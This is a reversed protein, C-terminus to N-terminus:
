KIVQVTGTIQYDSFKDDVATQINKDLSLQRLIVWSCVSLVVPVLIFASGTLWARWRDNGDARTELKGVRGNTKITQELIPKIEHERMDRLSSAHSLRSEEIAKLITASWADSKEENSKFLLDLERKTYAKEM